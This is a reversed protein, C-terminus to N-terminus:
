PFQFLALSYLSLIEIAKFSVTWFMRYENYCKVLLFNEM